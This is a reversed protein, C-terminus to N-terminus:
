NPVTELTVIVPLTFSDRAMDVIPLPEYLDGLAWRAYRDNLKRYKLTATMTLPPVVWDPISFTYSLIDSRGAPIFRKEAEGVRNFLDHKWVLNGKRDVPRSRYFEAAPDVALPSHKDGIIEGSSYVKKGLADYVVFEVWVENIDLTGAPFNHGVSQNTLLVDIDVEEGVRFYAPQESNTRIEERIARDTRRATTRNPPEISIAVRGERLFTVTRRFHEEDGFLHPLMTNAGPFYHNAVGGDGRASPDRAPEIAMHCDQCRQVDRDGFEETNKGSYPGDLWAGYEDQMKVWGWHNMDEDMFQVHCTACFESTELHDPLMEEKHMSPSWRILQHRLLRALPIDSRSFMYASGPGMEYSGVGKTHVVASTQHCVLCGVGEANALTGEIGGHKGGETLEGSLLALPAHCGECYRTAEIGRTKELLGINTVYAPDDAAHRHASALWQNTVDEHCAVCDDVAVLDSAPIFDGSYTKTESPAFPDDGYVYEYTPVAPGQSLDGNVLEIVTTAVAVLILVAALQWFLSKTSLRATSSWKHELARARKRTYSRAHQVGHVIVLVLAAFMAGIHLDLVWHLTESFGFFTLFLGTAVGLVFTSVSVIGSLTVAARRVGITRRFHAAIYPFFLGTVALGSAVHLFICLQFIYQRTGFIWTSIGSSICILVLLGLLGLYRQERELTTPRTTPM